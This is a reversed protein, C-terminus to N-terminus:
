IKIQQHEYVRPGVLFHVVEDSMQVSASFVAITIDAQKSVFLTTDRANLPFGDDSKQGQKFPIHSYPISPLVSINLLKTILIKPNKYFLSVLM